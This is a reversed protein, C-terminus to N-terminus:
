RDQLKNNRTQQILNSSQRSTSMLLKNLIFHVRESTLYSDLSNPLHERSPTNVYVTNM